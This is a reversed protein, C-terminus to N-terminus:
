FPDRDHRELRDAVLTVYGAIDFWHDHHRPDGAVIRGIKHCVMDLAEQMDADFRRGQDLMNRSIVAKLEQTVAAHIEFSGHTKERQNLVQNITTM